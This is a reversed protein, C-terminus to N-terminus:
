LSYTFDVKIELYKKDNNYYLLLNSSLYELIGIWASVNALIKKLCLYSFLELIQRQKDNLLWTLNKWAIDLNMKIKFIDLKLELWCTLNDVVNIM